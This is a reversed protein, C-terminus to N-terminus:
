VRKRPVQHHLIRKAWTVSDAKRLERVLVPVRYVSLMLGVLLLVGAVDSVAGGFCTQM